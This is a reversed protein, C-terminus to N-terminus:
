LKILRKGLKFPYDKLLDPDFKLVSEPENTDVTDAQFNIGDRSDFITPFNELVRIEAAMPNDLSDAKFFLDRLDSALIITTDGGEWKLHYAKMAKM